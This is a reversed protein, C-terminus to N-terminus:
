TQAKKLNQRGKVDIRTGGDAVGFKTFVVHRQNIRGFLKVFRTTKLTDKTAVFLYFVVYGFTVTLKDHCNM